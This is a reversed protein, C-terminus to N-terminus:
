EPRRRHVDASRPLIFVSRPATAVVTRAHITHANQHAPFIRFTRPPEATKGSDPSPRISAGHFFCESVAPGSSGPGSQPIRGIAIACSAGRANTRIANASEVVDNACAGAVGVVGVIM